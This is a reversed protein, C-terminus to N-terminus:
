ALRIVLERQFSTKPFMEGFGMDTIRITMRTDSKFKVGFELRTTGKPRKPLGTITHSSIVREGSPTRQAISLDLEGDIKGKVLVLKPQHAQWWFVDQEILPVYVDGTKIGIDGHLQHTDEINYTYGPAAELMIAAVQAAGEAIALKANRYMHIQEEGFVAGVAERAWLMEFGGGVCLVGNIDKPDLKADSIIKKMTHTIFQSFRQKYPTTRVEVDAHSISQQFPPYVFNYYLKAPKTRINKQFLIDKHQYTFASLHGHLADKSITESNNPTAHLFTELFSHIDQLIMGTGIEEDFLSSMATVQIPGDKIPASPLDNIAYVGGRVERSGYDLLLINEKGPLLHRYHNALVCERSPVLAILEKEYGALRFAEKLEEQGDHGLKEPIAAVIGVIEAKPNINRVNGMLEKIFRSIVLAVKLDRTGVQVYDFSGLRQVLSRFTIETGAGQNLIAYEGFVWENTEAIYQMVTPISPKGYGGSLDISEPSKERLNYFAIGSSENGIDLGIIYYSEDQKKAPPLTKYQKWNM